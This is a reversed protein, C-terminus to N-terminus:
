EASKELNHEASYTYHVEIVGEGFHCSFGYEKGEYVTGQEDQKNCTKLPHVTSMGVNRTLESLRVQMLKIADEKTKCDRRFGVGELLNVVDIRYHLAMLKNNSESGIKVTVLLGCEWPHLDVDDYAVIAIAKNIARKADEIAEIFEEDRHRRM